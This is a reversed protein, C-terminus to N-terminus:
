ISFSLHPTRREYADLAALGDLVHEVDYGEFGLSRRLLAAVGPDDEVILVKTGAGRKPGSQAANM